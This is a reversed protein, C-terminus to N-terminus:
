SEEEDAGPPIRLLSDKALEIMGLSEVLGLDNGSGDVAEVNHGMGGDADDDLYTEIVIRGLLIKDDM